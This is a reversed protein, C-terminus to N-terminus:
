GGLKARLRRAVDTISFSVTRFIRSCVVSVPPNASGKHSKHSRQVSAALSDNQSGTDIGTEFQSQGGIVTAVPAATQREIRDLREIVQTLEAAPERQMREAKSALEAISTSTGTKVADLQTKLADLAAADKQAHNQAFSARLVEVNAKLIRVDEAMKKATRLMETREANEQQPITQAPPPKQIDFPSYDGSFHSGEAWAFGFLCAALAAHSSYAFLQEFPSGVQRRSGASGKEIFPVLGAASRSGRKEWGQGNRPPLVVGNPAPVRGRAEGPPRSDPTPAAQDPTDDM